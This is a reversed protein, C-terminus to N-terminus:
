HICTGNWYHYGYPCSYGGNNYGGNNYGGNNYGGNNYGGNNYGGNNYGGNNNGGGYYQNNSGAVCQGNYDGYGAPCNNQALCGYTTSVFGAQCSGQAGYVGNTPTCQNSNSEQNYGTPCSAERSGCGFGFATIWGLTILM